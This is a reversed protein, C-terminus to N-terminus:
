PRPLPAQPCCTQEWTAANWSESLNLICCSLTRLFNFKFRKSKEPSPPPPPPNQLCVNALMSCRNLKIHLKVSPDTPLKNAVMNSCEHNEKIQYAVHGHELYTSNQGVSGMGLTPFPPLPDPPLKNAAMNSCEHNEKIQYAVHGKRFFYFYSRSVGDGPDLPPPPTPPRTPPRHAFYKSGHQQRRLERKNSISCTRVFNLKSRKVGGGLGGLPHSM